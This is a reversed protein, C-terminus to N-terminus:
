FRYSLSVSGFNTKGKQASFERTSFVHTYTIRTRLGINMAGGVQLEGVLYRKDNVSRSNQYTNGDLFINHLVIRSDLSGFLYWGFQSTPRFVGSGPLTPSIRPPGWDNPLNKGVRVTFGGNLQTFVNGVSGGWFPTGDWAWGDEGQGIWARNQRQYALLLAPENRLQKRWGRPQPSGTFRHVEKQIKDAGSAPGVVGVSLQLRDLRNETESGLGVTAYLWGAYPRDDKPPDVLTIDDPTYMNQGLSYSVKLEGRQSFFPLQDAGRRVLDPVHDDPSLWTARIGNTYYRDEGGFLDNEYELVLTGWEMRGDDAQTVAAMALGTLLLLCRM